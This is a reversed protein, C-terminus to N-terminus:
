IFTLERRMNIKYCQHFNILVTGLARFSFISQHVIGLVARSATASFKFKAWIYGGGWGM